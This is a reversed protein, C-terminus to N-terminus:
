HDLSSLSADDVESSASGPRHGHVNFGRFARGGSAGDLKYPGAHTEAEAGARGRPVKYIQQTLLHPGAQLYNAHWGRALGLGLRSAAANREGREVICRREVERHIAGVLDPGVEAQDFAAAASQQPLFDDGAGGRAHNHNSVLALVNS